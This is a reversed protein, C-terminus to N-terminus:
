CYCCICYNGKNLVQITLIFHLTIHSEDSPLTGKIIGVPVHLYPDGNRWMIYLDTYFGVLADVSCVIYM